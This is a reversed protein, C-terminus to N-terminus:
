RYSWPITPVGRTYTHRWDYTIRREDIELLRQRYFERGQEVAVDPMRWTSTEFDGESCIAIFYFNVTEGPFAAQVADRYLADQVHYGLDKASRMLMWPARRGKHRMTKIDGVCIGSDLDDVDAAAERSIDALKDVRVKVLLGSTPERWIITQEIGHVPEGTPLTPGPARLITSAQPHSWVSRLVCLLRLYDLLAIDIRDSISATLKERMAVASAHADNNAPIMKLLEHESVECKAALDRLKALRKDKVPKPPVPLGLRREWEDPELIALHSHTGFDMSISPETPQQEGGEWHREFAAPNDALLWLASRTLATRDAFYQAATWDVAVAQGLEIDDPSYGPV